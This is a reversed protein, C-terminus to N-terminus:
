TPSRRRRAGRNLLALKMIVLATTGIILVSIGSVAGDILVAAGVGVVVLGTASKHRLGDEGELRVRRSPWWAVLAGILAAGPALIAPALAEGALPLYTEAGAVLDGDRHAALLVLLYCVIAYVFGRRVGRRHSGGGDKWIRGALSRTALRRSAMQSM